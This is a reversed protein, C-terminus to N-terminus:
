EFLSSFLSVKKKPVYLSTREDLFDPDGKEFQEQSIGKIHKKPKLEKEFGNSKGGMVGHPICM